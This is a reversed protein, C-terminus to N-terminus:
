QIQSYEGEELNFRTNPIIPKSAENSNFFHEHFPSKSRHADFNDEDLPIEKGRRKRASNSSSAMNSGRKPKTLVHCPCLHSPNSSIPLSVPLTSLTPQPM